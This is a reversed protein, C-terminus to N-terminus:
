LRWVVKVSKGNVLIREILSALLLRRQDLDALQFGQRYDRLANCFLETAPVEEGKNLEVELAKQEESLANARQTIVDMPITGIQYLDILKQLQSSIEALRKKIAKKDIKVTKNKATDLTEQLLEPQAILADIQGCIISDLEEIPWNRNKCNPDTIFKASSKARSYCKYFGHNASYRAGCQSCFLLGSLLYGARFPTKQATTKKQERESSHLLRNATQFTQQDILPQHIGQYEQQLFQVKGIYISNQLVNRVKAASWKTTYQAALQKYIANISKGALFLDFVQRVQMAEYENVTLMGDQYDYGTPANAGGHFYGAKSRGIRGMTFRETIQDKELQAFVSLMGIM